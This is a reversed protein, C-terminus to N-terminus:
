KDISLINSFNPRTALVLIFSDNNVTQVIGDCHVKM